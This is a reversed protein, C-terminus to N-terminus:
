TGDLVIDKLEGLTRIRHAARSFDQDQTFDHHVVACDIGAAV